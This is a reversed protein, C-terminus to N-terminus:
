AKGFTTDEMNCSPNSNYKMNFVYEYMQSENSSNKNAESLQRLSCDETNRNVCVSFTPNHQTWYVSYIGRTGIPENVVSLTTSPGISV